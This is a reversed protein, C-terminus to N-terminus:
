NIQLRCLLNCYIKTARIGPASLHPIIHVSDSKILLLLLILKVTLSSSCCSHCVIVFVSLALFLAVLISSLLTRCYFIIKNTTHTHVIYMFLPHIANAITSEVHITNICTFVYFLNINVAEDAIAENTWDPAVNSLNIVKMNHKKGNNRQMERFAPRFAHSLSFKMLGNRSYHFQNQPSDFEPYQSIIAKESEVIHPKGIAKEVDRM